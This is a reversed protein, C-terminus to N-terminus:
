IIKDYDRLTQKAIKISDHVSKVYSRGKAAIRKREATNEVLQRLNEELSEKTSNVIPCNPVYKLLDKRVYCCVAKGLAMTECAFTGYFGTVLQDVVIDAKGYFDKVKSHPINELLMLEVPQGEAKLAEIAKLVTETGKIARNTPAHLIKVANGKRNSAKGKSTKKADDAKWYDLDIPYPLWPTGKPAWEILDPSGVYRLDCFRSFSHWPVGKFRIDSGWHTYVVKKGMAKLLPADAYFPLFSASHMHYVDYDNYRKLLEKIRVAPQLVRPFRDVKMNYDHPYKASHERFVVVDAQVGLKRQARALTVPVGAINHLHLVKM